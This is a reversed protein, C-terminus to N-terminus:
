ASKRVWRGDKRDYTKKVASWAVKHATEERTDEQDRRDSPDAYEEWANNDAAQYIEQAYRPLNQKMSEPLEDLLSYPM